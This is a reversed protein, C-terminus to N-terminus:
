KLTNPENNSKNDVNAELIRLTQVMHIHSQPVCISIFRTLSSFTDKIDLNQDLHKFANLLKSSITTSSYNIQGPYFM